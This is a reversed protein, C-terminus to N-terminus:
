LRLHRFGGLVAWVGGKQGSTAGRQEGEWREITYIHLPWAQALTPRQNTAEQNGPVDQKDQLWFGGFVAWFVRKQGSIAGDPCRLAFRFNRQGRAGCDVSSGEIYM